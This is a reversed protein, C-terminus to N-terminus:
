GFRRDMVSQGTINNLKNAINAAGAAYLNNKIADWWEGPIHEAIMEAVETAAREKVDADIKSRAREAQVRAPNLARRVTDASIGTEAAIKTAVGQPRGGQPKSAVQTSVEGRQGLLEAYRRIQDDRQDKTLDARHLNEAIEWLQADIDASDYHVFCEIKQWGLKKAAALRHAGAMLVLADDTDGPMGTPRESFYRVSIPTQMGISEISAALRDVSADEVPRLRSHAEILEVDLLEIKRTAANTM